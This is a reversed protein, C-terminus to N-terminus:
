MVKGNAGDVKVKKTSDGGRVSIDYQIGRHEHEVEVKVAKGNVSKEAMAIAQPLTMKAADLDKMNMGTIFNTLRGRINEDEIKLITGTTADVKYEKVGASGLTKIEWLPHGKEIDFEADLTKGQDAKEALQVAQGLSVKAKALQDAEHMDDARVSLSAGTALATTLILSSIRLTKMM